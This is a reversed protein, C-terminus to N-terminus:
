PETVMCAPDHATYLASLLTALQRRQSTTLPGLFEAEAEALRSLAKEVIQTGRESLSVLQKRRDTDSRERRAYGLKELRDIVAVMTTRDLGSHECLDRQSRPGACAFTMVRLERGSIDWATLEDDIRSKVLDGLRLMLYGTTSALQGAPTETGM